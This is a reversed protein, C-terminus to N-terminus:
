SARGAWRAIKEPAIWVGSRLEDSLPIDLWQGMDKKMGEVGMNGGDLVEAVSRTGSWSLM